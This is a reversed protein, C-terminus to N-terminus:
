NNWELCTYNVGRGEIFYKHFKDRLRRAFDSLSNEDHILPKELKWIIYDPNTARVPDRRPAVADESDLDSLDFDSDSDLSM